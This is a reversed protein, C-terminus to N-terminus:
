LLQKLASIGADTVLVYVYRADSWTATALRGQERFLTEPLSGAEIDTRRAVYIHYWADRKFCIEFVEIGAIRVARCHDAQLEEPTMPLGAHIANGPETLWAAVVGHHHPSFQHGGQLDAVALRIFQDVPLPRATTTRWFGSVTLLVAIAAAAALVLPRQWWVKRRSARAGTLISERLGTPAPLARFRESIAADLAQQRAFWQGLTPDHRTQALAEAFHSDQADQGGSRYACLIFKADNNTM